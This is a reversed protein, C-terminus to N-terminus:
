KKNGQLLGLQQMIAMNDILNWSEIILGNNDFLHLDWFTTVNKKGTPAIGLVTKSHTASAVSRGMVLNDEAVVHEVTIQLDSWTQHLEEFFNQIGSRGKESQKSKIIHDPSYYLVCEPIRNQNFLEKAKLYNAKNREAQESNHMAEM